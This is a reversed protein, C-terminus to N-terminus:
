TDCGNAVLYIHQTSMISLVWEEGANFHIVCLCAPPWLERDQSKRVPPASKRTNGHVGFLRSGSNTQNYM